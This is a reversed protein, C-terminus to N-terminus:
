LSSCFNRTFSQRFKGPTGSPRQMIRDVLIQASEIKDEIARGGALTSGQLLSKLALLLQDGPSPPPLFLLCSPILIISHFTPLLPSQVPSPLHLSFQCYPTLYCHPASLPLPPPLPHVTPHTAYVTEGLARSKFDAVNDVGLVFGLVFQFMVCSVVYHEILVDCCCSYCLAQVKGRDPGKAGWM